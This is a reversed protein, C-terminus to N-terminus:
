IYSVWYSQKKTKKWKIPFNISLFHKEVREALNPNNNRVFNQYLEGLEKSSESVKGHVLDLEEPVHFIYSLWMPIKVGSQKAKALSVRFYNFNHKEYNIVKNFSYSAEIPYGLALGINNNNLSLLARILRELNEKNSGIYFFLTEIEIPRKNENYIIDYDAGDQKYVVNLSKLIKNFDLVNKNKLKIDSDNNYSITNDKKMTWYFEDLFCPDLNIIGSPKLRNAVLYLALEDRVHLGEALKEM